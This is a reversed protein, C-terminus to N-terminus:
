VIAEVSKDSLLAISDPIESGFNFEINDVADLLVNDAVCIWILVLVMKGLVGSTIAVVTSVTSVLSLVVIIITIQTAIETINIIPPKNM